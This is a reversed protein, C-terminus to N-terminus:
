CKVGVCRIRIKINNEWRMRVKMLQWKELTRVWFETLM